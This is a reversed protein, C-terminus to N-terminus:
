IKYPPKYELTIVNDGEPIELRMFTDEYKSIKTERGNIHAEWWPYYNITAIFTIPKSSAISLTIKDPSYHIIKVIQQSIQNGEIAFLRPLAKKNEYIYLSPGFYQGKLFIKLKQFKNLEDWGTLKERYTSPLLELSPDSVPKQSIIYKVNILSLLDLNYYDNFKISELDNYNKPGYLYIRNGWGVFDDYKSKDDKIRNSIVKSWYQHYTQPYLTIYTDVTELGHALAYSPRVGGGTVTSVRWKQDKVVTALDVLDPHMYLSRYPSYNKATQIKIKVSSIFLVLLLIAAINKVIKIKKIKLLPVLVSAATLSLILPIFMYMRYLPFTALPGFAQVLSPQILRYAEPLFIFLISLFLMKKFYQQKTKKLILALAIISISIINTIITDRINKLVSVVPGQPYFSESSLDWSSRQSFPNTRLSILINEAQVILVCVFFVALAFILHRNTIKRFVLFWILIFIFLYPTSHAFYTSFGVFLSFAILTLYKKLTEKQIIKELSWLIFPAAPLGLQHYVTFSYTSFNLLSFLIGAFISPITSLNLIDKCLRYTFYSALFRQLFMLIGYALYGPLIIFLASNLNSFPVLALSAADVGSAMYSAFYSMGYRQFQIKSAILQPLM